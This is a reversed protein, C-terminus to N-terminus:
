SPGHSIRGDLPHRRAAGSILLYLSEARAFERRSQLLNGFNVGLATDGKRLMEEYTAAARARSRGPGGDFYFTTTWVRETEPLRDRFQWARAIASDIGSRPMGANSMAVALKRWAM